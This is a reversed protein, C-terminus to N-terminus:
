AKAREVLAAIADASNFNEPTIWDIDMEFGFADTLAVILSMLEMSDLYAGDVIDNVNELDMTPKIEKLIGLVSEKVSM